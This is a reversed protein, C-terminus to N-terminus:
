RLVRMWARAGRRVVLVSHQGFGHALAVARRADGLLLLHDEAWAPRGAQGVGSHFAIGRRRALRELRALARANRWDSARRSCPNWAGAFAAERVGAAALLRDVAPSRRGLLAVAGAAEYATIRWGRALRPGVPLPDPAWFRAHPPHPARRM